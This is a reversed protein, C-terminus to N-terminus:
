QGPLAAVLVEINEVVDDIEDGIVVDLRHIDVLDHTSRHM